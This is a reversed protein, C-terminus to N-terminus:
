ALIAEKNNGHGTALYDAAFNRLFTRGRELTTDKKLYIVLVDLLKGQPDKYTGLREYHNVRERYAEKIRGSAVVLRRDEGDDLHNLLNKIFDHFSGKEFSSTFTDRVLERAQEKQM